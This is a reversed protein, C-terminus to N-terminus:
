QVRALRLDNGQFVDRERLKNEPGSKEKKGGKIRKRMRSLRCKKELQSSPEMNGESSSHGSKRESRSNPETKVEFSVYIRRARAADRKLEAKTEKQKLDMRPEERTTFEALPAEDAEAAARLTAEEDPLYVFIALLM